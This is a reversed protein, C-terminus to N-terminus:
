TELVKSGLATLQWLPRAKTGGNEVIGASLLRRRHFHVASASLGLARCVQATSAPAQFALAIRRAPKSRLAALHAFAGAQTAPFYCTRGSSRLRNVKEHRQLIALHHELNGKGIGAAVRLEQYSIGPNESILEWLRARTPHALVKEPRLRTFFALIPAKYLFVLFGALGLGTTGVAAGVVGTSCAAAEVCFATRAQARQEACPDGDGTSSCAAADGNPVVIALCLAVLAWPLRM